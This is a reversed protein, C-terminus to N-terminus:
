EQFKVVKNQADLFAVKMRHSAAEKEDLHAFVMIILRDGVQGLRAAAGNLSYHGAKKGTIAYTTWREGNNINAVEVQEGERIDLRAMMDEPITMSGVYDISADTVTAHHIKCRCFPRLM